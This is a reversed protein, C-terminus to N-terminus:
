RLSEQVNTSAPRLTEQCYAATDGVRTLHRPRSATDVPHGRIAYETDLRGIVIMATSACGSLVREWPTPKAGTWPSATNSGFRRRHPRCVLMPKMPPLWQAADYACKGSKGCRNMEPSALTLNLLDTAFRRRTEPDAACLGSDHAESVAVIHEIDTEFTSRFSRGSYPGYIVGGQAGVIRAEISQPYPYDARNYPACRHEPAVALGRWTDPDQLAAALLGAGDALGPLALAAVAIVIRSIRSVGATPIYTRLINQILPDRNHPELNCRAHTTQAVLRKPLGEAGLLLAARRQDPQAPRAAEDAGAAAMPLMAHQRTPTEILAVPALLLCRGRRARDEVRGLQRQCEPKGGDVQDHVAFFPM